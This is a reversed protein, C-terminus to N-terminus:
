PSPASADSPPCPAAKRPPDAARAAAPPPHTLRDGSRGPPHGPPTPAPPRPAVLAAAAPTPLPPYRRHPATLQERRQRDVEAPMAYHITM